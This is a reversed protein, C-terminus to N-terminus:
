RLLIMLTHRLTFLAAAAFALTDGRCRREYPPTAVCPMAYPPLTRSSFHSYDPMFREATSFADADHWCERAASKDAYQAYCRAHQCAAAAYIVIAASRSAQPEFRRRSCARCRAAVHAARLCCVPARLDFAAHREYRPLLRAAFMREFSFLLRLLARCLCFPPLVRAYFTDAVVVCIATFMAYFILCRLRCCHRPIRIVYARRPPSPPEPCRLPADIFPM